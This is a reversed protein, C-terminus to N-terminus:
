LLSEGDARTSIHDNTGLPQQSADWPWTCRSSGQLSAPLLLLTHPPPPVGGDRGPAWSGATDPEGGGGGRRGPSGGRATVAPHVDQKRWSAGDLRPQFTLHGVPRAERGGTVLLGVGATPPPPPEWSDDSHLPPPPQTGSRRVGAGRRQEGWPGLTRKPGKDHRGTRGRGGPLRSRETPRPLTARPGPAPGSKSPQSCPPLVAQHRLSKLRRGEQHLSRPLPWWPGQLTAWPPLACPLRGDPPRVTPPTPAM